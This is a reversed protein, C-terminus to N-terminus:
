IRPLWMGMIAMAIGVGMALTLAILALAMALRDVADGRDQSRLYIELIGLPVLYCAFSLITPFPGDFNEGFGAPGHNLLIWLMLAVRFFWVGNVAIFLRLAWRRHVGINRALAHRLTMAAFYMILLGNLSIGAGLNVGGATGRTWVAYLGALSILFATLVYLRGNWRHLPLARARIQPILQVPGGVTIIVALFLHAALVVNGFLGGAVWGGVLVDNWREYQGELASRGYFAVVYGAFAFQGAAAVVFWFAGSARLAKDAFSNLM